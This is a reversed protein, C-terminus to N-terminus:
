FFSTMLFPAHNEKKLLPSSLLFARMLKNMVGQLYPFAHMNMQLNDQAIYM